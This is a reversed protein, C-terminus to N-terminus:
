KYSAASHIWYSQKQRPTHDIINIRKNTSTLEERKLILVVVFLPMMTLAGESPEVNLNLAMQDLLLVV